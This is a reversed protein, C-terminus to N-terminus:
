DAFFRRWWNARTKMEPAKEDNPEEPWGFERLFKRASPSVTEPFGKTAYWYENELWFRFLFSEFSPAAFVIADPDLEATPPNDADHAYHDQSCLVCHDDMSTPLYLYWFLCGQQDSLFRLVLGDGKPSAVFETAPDLYCATCSRIRKALNPDNFFTVFPQPLVVAQKDCCQLLRPITKRIDNRDREFFSDSRSPEARLWAFSGDFTVGAPAPFPTYDYRGYTGVRLRLGPLETGWWRPEFPTQSAEVIAGKRTRKRDCRERSLHV